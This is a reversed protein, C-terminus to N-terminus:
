QPSNCEGAEQNKWLIILEPLFHLALVAVWFYVNIKPSLPLHFIGARLAPINETLYIVM